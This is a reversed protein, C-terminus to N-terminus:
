APIETVVIGHLAHMLKAKLKYEPTRVGKVDEVVVAGGHQYVFDAVYDAIRHGNVRLSFRVQRDLAAIKGEAELASLTRWRRAEAMSDFKLGDVEVKRANFKNRRPM